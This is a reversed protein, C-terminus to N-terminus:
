NVKEKNIDYDMIYDVFSGKLYKKHLEEVYEWDNLKNKDYTPKKDDDDDYCSIKEDLKEIIEKIVYKRADKKLKFLKPKREYVGNDYRHKYDDEYDTITVVYINM